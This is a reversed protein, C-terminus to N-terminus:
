TTNGRNVRAYVGKIGLMQAMEVHSMAQQLCREIDSDALIAADDSGDVEAFLLETLVEDIATMAVACAAKIKQPRVDNTPNNEVSCRAMADQSADINLTSTGKKGEVVITASIESM